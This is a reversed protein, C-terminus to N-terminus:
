RQWADEIARRLEPATPTNTDDFLAAIRGNRDVVYVRPIVGTAFRAYLTRDDQPCYPLQFKQQKWYAEVQAETQQRSITLFETQAVPAPANQCSRYCENLIPLFRRCDSCTTNFFTIVAVSGKLATTSLTRGDSMVVSFEPVADGVSVLSRYTPQEDPRCAHLLTSMTLLALLTALIKKM